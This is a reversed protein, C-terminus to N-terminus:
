CLVKKEKDIIVYSHTINSLINKESIDHKQCRIEFRSLEKTKIYSTM